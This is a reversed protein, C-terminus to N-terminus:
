YLTHRAQLSPLRAEPRDFVWPKPPGSAGFVLASVLGLAIGVQVM